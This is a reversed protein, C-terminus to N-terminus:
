PSVPESSFARAKEPKGWSEYLEVLRERARITNDHRDGFTALISAHSKLLLKEADEFAEDRAEGVILNVAGTFGGPEESAAVLKQVENVLTPDDTCCSELHAQRNEPALTLTQKFLEELRQWRQRDM